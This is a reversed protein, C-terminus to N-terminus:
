RRRQFCRPLCCGRKCFKWKNKQSLRDGLKKLWVYPHTGIGSREAWNDLFAFYKQVEENSAIRVFLYKAPELDQENLVGNKWMLALNAFLHLLKDTHAEQANESPTRGPRYVFRGWDIDYFVQRMDDDAMFQQLADSVIQTRRIRNNLATQWAQFALSLAAIFVGAAPGSVLAVQLWYPFSSILADM